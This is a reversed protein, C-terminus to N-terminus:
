MMKYIANAKEMILQYKDKGVGFRELNNEIYDAIDKYRAKLYRFYQTKYEQPLDEYALGEETYKIAEVYYYVVTEPKGDQLKYEDALLQNNNALRICLVGDFEMDEDLPMLFIKRDGMINELINSNPIVSKWGEYNEQTRYNKAEEVKNLFINEEEQVKAILKEEASNKLVTSSKKQNRIGDIHEKVEKSLKSEDLSVYFVREEDTDSLVELRDPESLIFTKSEMEEKEEPTIDKNSDGESVITTEVNTTNGNSNANMSVSDKKTKDEMWTNYQFVTMCGNVIVGFILITTIVRYCRKKVKRNETYKEDNEKIKRYITIYGTNEACRELYQEKQYEYRDKNIKEKKCFSVKLWIWIALLVISVMGFIVINLMGFQLGTIGFIVDCFLSIGTSIIGSIEPITNQKSKNNKSERM